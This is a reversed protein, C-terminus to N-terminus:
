LLPLWPLYHLELLVQNSAKLVSYKEDEKRWLAHIQPAKCGESPFLCLGTQEQPSQTVEPAQTQHAKATLADSQFQWGQPKPNPNARFAGAGPAASSPFCKFEPSLSAGM